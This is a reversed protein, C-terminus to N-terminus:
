GLEVPNLDDDFPRCQGILCDDREFRGGVEFALSLADIPEVPWSEEPAQDAADARENFTIEALKPCPRYSTRVLPPCDASRLLCYSRHAPLILSRREHEHERLRPRSPPVLFGLILVLILVLLISGFIRDNEYEYEHNERNAVPSVLM